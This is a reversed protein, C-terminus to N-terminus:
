LPRATGAGPRGQGHLGELMRQLALPTIRDLREEGLTPRVYSALLDRYDRLTRARVSRAKTELWQDLYRNLTISRSEVVVGIEQRGQIERLARQADRKTGHVTKSGYRRKGGADRGQFWRLRFVREGRREIQGQAM